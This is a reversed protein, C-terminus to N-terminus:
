CGSWWCATGDRAQTIAKWKPSDNDTLTLKAGWMGYKSPAGVHHYYVFTQGGAAKWDAMDQAYAAQMRADRNANTILSLFAADTDGVPPVLHQGGEYAWMPLGYSDAVAKTTTMWGNSMGRAGATFKTLAGLPALMPTGTPTAGNIEEFLKTLGGDADTYWTKITPRYTPNAIYYGFYPAISLVDFFKGCPKGLAAAAYTCSLVQQTVSTLAAQSNAICTVRSADAGFEAKAITCVQALRQAYWNLGLTYVNAGQSVQTPWTAKAQTLMWNTAPFAYNWAENSYELNLKLTSSLRQHALRAFQHVYDDNAYPPINVWPDTGTDNALDIMTELPVGNDGAWTRDTPLSRTAWNANTTTNTRMWDMFRLTRFGKVDSYFPPYWPKTAPFTEFAVYAGKTGGCATADAAFTSYDNACAGGPPYVRINRLYNGPTTANITVFFGGNAATVQVVDRGAASLSAVKAGAGSYSLTGQGDYKVIYKGDPLGGGSVITTVYRYKTTADTSAPLSKIWGQADVNLKSEERTDWASQGAAFDKCTASTWSACQTLWAGARKMLDITPFETSTPDLPALNMGAGSRPTKAAIGAKPVTIAPAVAQPQVDASAITTDPTPATSADTTVPEAVPAVPAASSSTDTSTVVSAAVNNSSGTEASASSSAQTPTSEPDAGGNGGGCATLASGVAVIYASARLARQFDFFM